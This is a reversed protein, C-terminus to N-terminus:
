RWHDIIEFWNRRWQERILYAAAPAGCGQRRVKQYAPFRKYPIRHLTIEATPGDLECIAYSADTHSDRQQGVSGPNVCCFRDLRAAFRRTKQVLEDQVIRGDRGIVTVRPRHTHGYFILPYGCGRFAEAIQEARNLYAWMKPGEPASHFFAAGYQVVHTPLKALEGGSRKTIHERTWAVSQKGLAGCDSEDIDGALIAEHNGKLIHRCSEKVLAWCAEPDAGYGVVDGLCIIESINRKKISKLVAQLGELNGHIDSIVAFRVSM